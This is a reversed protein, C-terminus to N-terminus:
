NEGSTQPRIVRRLSHDYVASEGPGIQLSDRITEGTSLVVQIRHQGPRLTRRGSNLVNEKVFAGDIYITAPHDGQVQLIAPPERKLILELSQDGEQLTVLTDKVAYGDLRLTLPTGGSLLDRLVVPTSGVSLGRLLIEAGPPDTNLALNATKRGCILTLTTLGGPKVACRESVPAHGPLRATVQHRASVPLHALTVPSVGAERGDVTIVAGPPDSVIRLDGVLPRLALSRRLSEGAAPTMVLTTEAYGSAQIHVRHERQSSVAGRFSGSGVRSEDLDIVAQQPDVRLDVVAENARPPATAIPASHQPRMSVWSLGALVFLVSAAATLLPRRSRRPRGHGVIIGEERLVQWVSHMRRVWLRWLDMRFAYGPVPDMNKLLFDKKFLGELTTALRARSMKLSYSGYKLLSLLDQVRGHDESAALKEALLSLTIKEDRDFSDWLFIMQPFPNDIIEGVVAQLDAPSAHRSRRENLHDVLNQCIAQTYFPQGATLRCIREPVGVEYVVKGEVPRRILNVADDRQLYSIVRYLSKGLIRWYPQRREGIDQSGTFVLSVGHLEMMNALMSLCDESLIGAEIKNGLLEYEDFLLVPTQEPFAARLEGMFKLFAGCPRSAAAFDPPPLSRGREDLTELIEEAVKALFDGENEIAMSQMDILVPLFGPGLRGDLIQFLISTKGSRREGCFVLLGGRAPPHFRRRVLDFESERGFFMIRERVPNGVIFPNPTIPVFPFEARDESDYRDDQDPARHPDKRLMISDAV